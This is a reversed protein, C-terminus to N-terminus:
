VNRLVADPRGPWFTTEPATHGPLILGPEGLGEALDNHLARLFTMAAQDRLAAPWNLRGLGEAGHRSEKYTSCREADADKHLWALAAKPHQARRGQVGKGLWVPRLKPPQDDCGPQGCCACDAGNDNLYA